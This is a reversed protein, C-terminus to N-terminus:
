MKIPFNHLKTPGKEATYVEGSNPLVMLPIKEARSKNLAKFMNSVYIPNVCNVGVALLNGSSKAKEWVSGAAEVFDDGYALTMNEKSAFKDILTYEDWVLM